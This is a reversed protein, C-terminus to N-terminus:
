HDAADRLFITAYRREHDRRHRSYPELGTAFYPYRPGLVLRSEEHIRELAFTMPSLRHRHSLRARMDIDMGSVFLAARPKLLAVANDFLRRALPRRLNCMVNQAFVIDAHAMTERACPRTADAVLFRVREAIAPKVIWLADAVDFTQELFDSTILPNGLVQRATYTASRASALVADDIDYGDITVAQEPKRALLASSITYPEMGTSCGLVIVRLATGHLNPALFDLVPGCLAEYQSPLRLFQTF